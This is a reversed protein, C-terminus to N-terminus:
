LYDLSTIDIAISLLQVVARCTELRQDTQFHPFTINLPHDFVMIMCSSNPFRESLNRGRITFTEPFYTIPNDKWILRATGHCLTQDWKFYFARTGLRSRWNESLALHTRRGCEIKLFIISHRSKDAWLKNRRSMPETRTAVSVRLHCM